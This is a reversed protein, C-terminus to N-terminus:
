LVGAEQTGIDAGVYSAFVDDEALEGPQGAFTVQGRNLLYVFDAIAM